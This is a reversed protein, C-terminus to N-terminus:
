WGWWAQLTEWLTQPAQQAAWGLDVEVTRWAGAAVEQALQGAQWGCYGYFRMMEPADEGMPLQLKYRRAPSVFGGTRVGETNSPRNLIFGVSGYAEHAALVIVTQRFRADAVLETAVLVTGPELPPNWQGAPTSTVVSFGLLGCVGVVRAGRGM